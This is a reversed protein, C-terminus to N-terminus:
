AAKPRGNDDCPLQDAGYAKQFDRADEHVTATIASPGVKVWGNFPREIDRIILLASTLLATIVLLTVLQPRNNKRPLCLGLAIVTLALTVLMFWYITSPIAPTSEAVRTDRAKSRADDASVLMGFAPGADGAEKKLQLRLDTTWISPVSSGHGHALDPWEVNQVARAYCVVDAQLRQRDAPPAYEAVEYMHDVVGAETRAAEDANGNSNAAMALVFALLLITLTQMPAVLDRVSFGESDEGLVRRHLLRNAVVGLILAGVAVILTVTM